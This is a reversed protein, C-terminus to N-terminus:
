FELSILWKQRRLLKYKLLNGLYDKPVGVKVFSRIVKLTTADFLFPNFSFIGSFVTGKLFTPL